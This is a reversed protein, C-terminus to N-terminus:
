TRPNRDNKNKLCFVAYSRRMLYQLESTHEESRGVDRHRVKRHPKLGPVAHAHVRRIQGLKQALFPEGIFFVSSADSAPRGSTLAARRSHRSRRWGKMRRWGSRSTKTSSVLTFVLM